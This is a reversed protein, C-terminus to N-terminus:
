FLYLFGSSSLRTFTKPIEKYDQGYHSSILQYIGFPISLATVTIILSKSGAKTALKHLHQEKRSVQAELKQFIRPIFRREGYGAQQVAKVTYGSSSKRLLVINNLFQLLIISCLNLTERLFRKLELIPPVSINIVATLISRLRLLRRTM